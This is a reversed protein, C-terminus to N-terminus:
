MDNKTCEELKQLGYIKTDNINSKDKCEKHFNTNKSLCDTEITLESEFNEKINHNIIYFLFIILIFFLIIYLIM